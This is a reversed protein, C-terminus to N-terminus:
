PDIRALIEGKKVKSNYDVYIESITGSSQSGIAVTNQPNVTGSATVSQALDQRIVPQTVYTMETRTRLTVSAVIIASILVIALLLAVIRHHMLWNWAGSFSPPSKSRVSGATPITIRGQM